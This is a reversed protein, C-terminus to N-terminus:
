SWFVVMVFPILIKLVNEEEMARGLQVTDGREGRLGDAVGLPLNLKRLAHPTVARWVM